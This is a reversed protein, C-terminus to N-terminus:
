SSRRSSGIPGPSTPCLLGDAALRRLGDRVDRKGSDVEDATAAFYTRAEHFELAATV